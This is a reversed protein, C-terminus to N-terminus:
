RREWRQWLERWRLWRQGVHIAFGKFKERIATFDVGLWEGHDAVAVKTQMM